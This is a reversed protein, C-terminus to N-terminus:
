LTDGVAYNSFDEIIIPKIFSNHYAKAQEPTFAYNYIKFDEMDGKLNGTNNTRSFLSMTNITAGLGAGTVGDISLDIGNLYIKPTKTTADWTCVVSYIAGLVPAMNASTQVSTSSYRVFFQFHNTTVPFHVQCGNNADKVIDVARSWTPGSSHKTSIRGVLTFNNNAINDFITPLPCIIDDNVGDFVLTNKNLIAGDITGHNADGSIDLLQNRQVTMPSPSYAAILGSIKQLTFETITASGSGIGSTTFQIVGKTSPSNSVIYTIYDDYTGAPYTKLTIAGGRGDQLAVSSTGTVNLKIRLLYKDGPVLNFTKYLTETTIWTFSNNTKNAMGIWGSTFDLPQILEAGLVSDREYGLDTPKPYEFFRTPKETITSQLFEKYDEQMEQTSLVHDYVQIRLIDENNQANNGDGIMTYISRSSLTGTTVITGDALQVLNRFCKAAALAASSHGTMTFVFHHFNNDYSGVPIVFSKSCSAGFGIFPVNSSYHTCICNQFGNDGIINVRTSGGREFFKSWVIVTFAQEPLLQKTYDLRITNNFRQFLGKNIKTFNASGKGFAGAVKSVQDILSGRRFDVEFYKGM